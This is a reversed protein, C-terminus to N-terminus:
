RATSRFRPRSCRLRSLRARHRGAARGHRLHRRAVPRRFPMSLRDSGLVPFAELLWFSATTIWGTLFAIGTLVLLAGMAKEVKPSIARFRALFRAFPEVAFAAGHVSHRPGAFLDRAAGRGEDGDGGLGRGRPDRRPDARHVADLRVRLRAGDRLRGVPRGAQGGGHAERSVAARHPTVGLFHLGMIIIVVGAVMSLRDAHSRILSGFASASAGLAIFVTSFGAVFLLAAGVTEWRVRPEPERRRLARAVDRRSLRSVAAGAAARLAVPLEAARRVARRFHHRRCGHPALTCVSPPEQLGRWHAKPFHDSTIRLRIVSTGPRLTPLAARRLGRRRCRGRDHEVLRRDGRDVHAAAPGPERSVSSSRGSCVTSRTSAITSEPPEANPRSAGPPACSSGARAPVRSERDAGHDHRDHRARDQEVQEVAAVLVPAAM